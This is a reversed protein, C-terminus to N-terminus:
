IQFAELLKRAQGKASALDEVKLTILEQQKSEKVQAFLEEVALQGMFDDADIYIEARLGHKVLHPYWVQTSYEYIDQSASELKSHDSIIIQINNKPIYELCFNLARMVEPDKTEYFGEYYGLLCHPIEASLDYLRANKNELIKQM